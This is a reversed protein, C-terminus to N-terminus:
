RTPVQQSLTISGLLLSEQPHVGILHVRQVRSWATEQHATPVWASSGSGLEVPELALEGSSTLFRLILREGPRLDLGASHIRVGAREEIPELVGDGPTGPEGLWAPDQESGSSPPAWLDWLALLLGAAVAWMEFGLGPRWPRAAPDLAERVLERDRRALSGDPDDVLGRLAEPHERLLAEVRGLEEHEHTLVPDELLSPAPDAPLPDSEGSCARHTEELRVKSTPERNVISNKCM